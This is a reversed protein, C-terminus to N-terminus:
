PADSFDFDFVAVAGSSHELELVTTHLGNLRVTIQGDDVDRSAAIVDLGYLEQLQRLSRVLDSV